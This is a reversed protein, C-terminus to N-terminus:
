FRNLFTTRGSLSRVQNMVPADTPLVIQNQIAGIRVIRKGRLQEDAADIGYGKLEFKKESSLQKAKEPLELSRCFV